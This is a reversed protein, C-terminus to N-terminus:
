MCIVTFPGDTRRGLGAERLNFITSFRVVSFVKGKYLLVPFVISTEIQLM